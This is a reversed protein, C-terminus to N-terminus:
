LRVCASAPSVPAVTTTVTASWSTALLEHTPPPLTASDAELPAEFAERPSERTAVTRLDERAMDAEGPGRPRATSRAARAARLELPVSPILLILALLKTGGRSLAEVESARAGLQLQSPTFPGGGCRVGIGGTCCELLCGRCSTCFRAGCALEDDSMRWVSAQRLGSLVTLAATVTDASGNDSLTVM